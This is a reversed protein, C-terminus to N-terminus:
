RQKPASADRGCAHEAPAPRRVPLGGEWVIPVEDWVQRLLECYDRSFDALDWFLTSGLDSAAILRDDAVALHRIPGHLRAHALRRGNALSWIGISGDRHGAVLTGRPGAVMRVVPSSPTAEFSFAPKVVGAASILEISGDRYGAVWWSGIRAVSSVGVDAQTEGIKGGDLDYEAIAGDRGIRLRDGDVEIARAPGLDKGGLPTAITANGEGIMACGRGTSRVDDARGTAYVEREDRAISWGEVTDDFTALCILGGAAHSFRAGSAQARWKSDGTPLARGDSALLPARWLSHGTKADWSRVTRDDGTTVARTGDPSFRLYNVEGSHGRLVITKDRGILHALGNSTPVGLTGDNSIALWYIRGDVRARISGKGSGVDWERVTGDGGGSLLTREDEFWVGFVDGAHGTLVASQKQKKLDWIRVTGDRGGTALKAGSPDFATSWVAGDHGRLVALQAGSDLKWLRVTGDRGTSALTSGDPSYSLSIVHNQHGFLSRRQVGDAARWLRIAHDNGASAITRGDPSWAVAVVAATHGSLVSREEGNSGWVRVTDDSSATAFSRGDPSWAVGVVTNEHGHPREIEVARAVDWFRVTDDFGVSVLRRGNPAFALGTVSDEHGELTTIAAGTEVDWIRITRDVGASALLTGNGSFAITRPSDSHGELVRARGTALDWIRVTLDGSASALWRGDPSFAVDLIPGKHGEFRHKEGSSPTWVVVAPDRSAVAITAGDPSYALAGVHSGLQLERKKELSGVDWIAIKQDAGATAIAAGDPSYAVDTVGGGHASVQRTKRDADRLVLRGDWTGAALERGEPSFAVSMVQDGYGRLHSIAETEVDITKATGDSCAIAIRAGDKAFAVGLLLTDLPKKFVLPQRRVDWWLVRALTSDETELSGRIKARAELLNGRLAAVRAGERQAEAWRERAMQSHHEAQEKQFYLGMTMAALALVLATVAAISRRRKRLERKKGADLFETVRASPRETIRALHGVAEHLADKEWLEADRRGRKEWLAAAQGVQELFALEERTEDLWRELRKWTKILSEHVLELQTEDDSEMLARRVTVLRSRVLRALVQESGPGLRELAQDRTIVKRTRDATVMRLLLKKVLAVRDTTMGILVGDAHDALAGAVGGMANYAAETLRHREEDRREWLLNAAFSILPLAAPEGTVSQLMRDVLDPPDFRYGLAHVPREVAQRLAAPVPNRVVMVRAFADRGDEDIALRGLFDDRVTVLVRIPAERDEAAALLASMFTSRVKDNRVLTSLEELQDIFLLVRGGKEAAIRHLHLSLAHPSQQLERSLVYTEDRFTKILHDSKSPPPRTPDQENTFAEEPFEGTEEGSIIKSALAYFPQAGPRLKIVMWTGQERLRPIIGAQVFSSKGVGSPGVIALMTEDRVREVASAVEADRGFFMHAHRESFPLLGRFPNKAHAIPRRDTTSELAALVESATPRREPAKDLCRDILTELPGDGALRPVPEIAVVKRALDARSTEFNSYPRKGSIMEYLIVGLAWIDTAGDTDQKRWQEPSMYLPTGGGRPHSGGPDLVTPNESSRNALSDDQFAGALGFDVVRPRGDRPILVNEPKLDRHIIAHEHAEQLASAIARAIRIAEKIGLQERNMRERLSEGELYELAVYPMGRFEGVSHIAVINPHNFRATARAEFLFRERTRKSRLQSQRVVKLAVRRGLGVDRALYVEGMGGRGLFRIVQFNDVLTDPKFLGEERQVVVTRVTAGLDGEGWPILTEGTPDKKREVANAKSVIALLERCEPCADLHEEVRDRRSSALAGQIFEVVDNEDVHEQSSSTV